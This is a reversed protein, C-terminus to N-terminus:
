QHTQLNNRWFYDVNRPKLWRGIGKHHVKDVATCWWAAPHKGSSLGATHSVSEGMRWGVIKESRMREAIILAAWFGVARVNSDDCGFWDAGAGM